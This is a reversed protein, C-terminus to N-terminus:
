DEEKEIEELRNEVEDLRSELLKVERALLDALKGAGYGIERALSLLRYVIKYERLLTGLRAVEKEVQDIEAELRRVRERLTELLTRAERVVDELQQLKVYFDSYLDELKSAAAVM